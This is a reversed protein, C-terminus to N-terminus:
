TQHAIVIKGFQQSNKMREIADNGEALPFVEDVIPKIKHENVFALMAAFNDPSGMTSGILHLQKWFVKFL